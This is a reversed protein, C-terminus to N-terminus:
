DGTLAEHRLNREPFRKPRPCFVGNSQLKQFGNRRRSVLTSQDHNSSTAWPVTPNPILMPRRRFSPAVSGLTMPTDGKVLVIIGCARYLPL